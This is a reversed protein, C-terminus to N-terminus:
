ASDSLSHLSSFYHADVEWETSSCCLQLVFKMLVHEMAFNCSRRAGWGVHGEEQEEALILKGDVPKNVDDHAEVEDDSKKLKEEETKLEKALKKDLKLADSVSGQSLLRGDSGM